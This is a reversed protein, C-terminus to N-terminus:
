ETIFLKGSFEFPNDNEDKYKVRYLYIGTNLDTMQWDNSYQKQNLYVKGSEDMLLVDFNHLSPHYIQFASKRSQPNPIILDDTQFALAGSSHQPTYGGYIPQPIASETIIVVGEDQLLEANVPDSLKILFYEDPEPILDTKIQVRIHKSTQGPLFRVTGTTAIYDSGKLATGNKTKYNVKVVEDVPGSLSVPVYVYIGAETVYSTDNISITTVTPSGEGLKVIWFDASGHNGSVDGDNSDSFGAVIYKGDTTPQIGFSMENKSGGYSENWEIAGLSDLKVVWYDYENDLTDYLPMTAGSLIYGNDSTKQICSGYDQSITGLAREWVINGNEDTKVVWADTVGNFHSIDGDDSATWGTFIYGGDLTQMISKVDDGLSGGMTKQWILNGFGDLKLLWCDIVGQYFTVDGDDSGAHGGVIYGGDTTQAVSFAIDIESGGFTKEWEISGTSSLKVVWVDNGGDNESVDGDTSSTIGVVMYGGDVTPIIDYGTENLTGGYAKKWTIDGDATLKLVWLDYYGHNDTVDFDSSNTWGTVIFGGDTTPEIATAYDGESGGYTKEWILNGISDIRIVWVDAYGKFVSVDGDDSLTYGAVIFGGDPLQKIDAAFDFESGGYSKQWEIFNLQAWVPVILTVLFFVFSLELSRKMFM